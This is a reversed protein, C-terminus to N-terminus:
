LGMRDLQARGALVQHPATQPPEATMTISCLEENQAASFYHPAFSRATAVQHVLSYMLTRTAEIQRWRCILGGALLTCKQVILGWM